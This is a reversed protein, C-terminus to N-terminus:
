RSTATTTSPRINPGINKAPNSTKQPPAILSLDIFLQLCLFSHKHANWQEKLLWMCHGLTMLLCVQALQTENLQGQRALQLLQPMNQMLAATAEAHGLAAAQGPARANQATGAAALQQQQQPTLASNDNNLSM